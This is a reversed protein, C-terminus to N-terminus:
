REAAVARGYHIGGTSNIFEVVRKTGVGIRMGHKADYVGEPRYGSRYLRMLGNPPTPPLEEQEQRTRQDAFIKGRSRLIDRKLGCEYCLRDDPNARARGCIICKTRM